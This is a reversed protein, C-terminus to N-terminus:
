ILSHIWVPTLTQYQLSYSFTGETYTNHAAKRLFKELSKQSYCNNQSCFLTVVIMFYLLYMESLGKLRPARKMEM